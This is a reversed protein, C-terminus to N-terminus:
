PQAPQRTDPTLSKYREEQLPSLPPFIDIVTVRNNEVTMEIGRSLWYYEGEYGKAYRYHYTGLLSFIDTKSSFAWHGEVKFDKRTVTFGPYTSLIMYVLRGKKFFGKYIPIKSIKNQKKFEVVEDFGLFFVLEKYPTYGMNVYKQREKAHSNEETPVGLMKKVTAKRMGLALAGISQGPVIQNHNLGPLLPRTGTLNKITHLPRPLKPPASETDSQITKGACSAWLALSLVTALLRPLTM